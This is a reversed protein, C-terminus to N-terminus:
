NTTSSNVISIKLADAKVVKKLFDAFAPFESAAFTGKYRTISRIYQLQKNEYKVNSSYIGYKSEIKIDAPLNEPILNSSFNYTITDVDTYGNNITFDFKRTKSISPVYKEQNLMNATLFFRKGSRVLFDTTTAKINEVGVPKPCNDQSYNFSQIAINAVDLRKLLDKKYDDPNTYAAYILYEYQNGSYHTQIELKATTESNFAVSVVTSKLNKAEPCKPEYILKGGESTLFLAPHGEASSGVYGVPSRQSTCELFLTDQKLPVALKMHNFMNRVVDNQRIFSGNGSYALYRISPIGVERLMAYMYTSLAKCDGYNYKDTVSADFSKLGGIGLQISVYRTKDQMYKYIAKVKEYDSSINKVLEHIEAKTKDSITNPQENLDYIWKGFSEWTQMNGKYGSLEFDNPATVVNPSYTFLDPMFTENEYAPMNEATWTYCNVLEETTILAPKMGAYEKYRFTMNKAVNMSFISKQVAINNDYQPFWQPLHFLGKYETTFEAVVTYPYSNVITSYAKFRTDDYLSFDAFTSGDYIDGSKVKKIKKGSADYIVISVDSIKTFRDYGETFKAAADGNKNLITIALYNLEKATAPTQFDFQKKQLRIVAYANKQLSDPILSVPYLAEAARLQIIAICAVAFFFIIHKM